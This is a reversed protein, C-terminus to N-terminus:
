AIEVAVETASEFRVDPKRILKNVFTRPTPGAAVTELM